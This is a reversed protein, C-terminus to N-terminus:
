SGLVLVTGQMNPHIECHYTYTGPNAFTESYEGGPSIVGSDFAGSDSTVTHPAAGENYWEVTDGSHVFVMSPRFAFDVIDVAKTEGGGGMQGGMNGGMTGGGITITGGSSGGGAQGGGGGGANGGGMPYDGGYQAAVAMPVALLALFVLLVTLRKM